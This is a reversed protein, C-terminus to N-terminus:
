ERLEEREKKIEKAMEEEDDVDDLLKGLKTNIKSLNDTISQGILLLSENLKMLTVMLDNRFVGAHLYSSVQRMIAKEHDDEIQEEEVQQDTPDSTNKSKTEEAKTEKSARMKAMKEALSLKQSRDTSKNEEM